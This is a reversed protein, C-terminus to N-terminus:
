FLGRISKLYGQGNPGYVALVKGELNVVVVQHDIDSRIMKGHYVINEDDIMYKEFGKFAEELALLRYNGKEIDELDYCDQLSFHGSRTRILHCMHGPYGLDRAIDVCLSRIYTGKSCHVLFEVLHEKQSLLQINIIEIDRPEVKVEEHNRAYEYLKKGNVKIASYMPPLQKQKGLYSKLVKEVDNVGTFEKTELVKGSSDYTDTFTGLSLTAQYEKDECMLFQLAKTAKGICLVLVGMADPDLTGCHGVKKTHLTKRIFNVVDHSTMGTPKNVLLIGNMRDGFLIIVCLCINYFFFGIM